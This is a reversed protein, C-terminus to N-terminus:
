YLEHYLPIRINENELERISIGFKDTINASAGISLLFNEMKNNQRIKCYFLATRGDIDKFNVNAGYRVLEMAIEYHDLACAIMFPTCNGTLDVSAGCNLLLKVGDIDNDGTAQYLPTQGDSDVVNVNAGYNILTQVIKLNQRQVAWHLATYDDSDKTNVDMGKSLLFVCIDISDDFAISYILSQDGKRYYNLKGTTDLAHVIDINGSMAARELPYFAANRNGNVDAGKSILFRVVELNDDAIASLLLTNKNKKDISEISNEKLFRSIEEIICEQKELNFIDYFDNITSM